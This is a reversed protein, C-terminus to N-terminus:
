ARLPHLGNQGPESGAVRRGGILLPEDV